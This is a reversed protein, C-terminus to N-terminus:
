QEDEAGGEETPIEIDALMAIYDIDAANKTAIAQAYEMDAMTQLDIKKRKLLMKLGGM